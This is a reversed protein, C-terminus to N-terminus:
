TFSGFILVLPKGGIQDALRLTGGDLRALEVDPALDGLRLKGERRQDYLLLGIVNRPGIQWVLWGAAGVVLVAVVLLLRRWM